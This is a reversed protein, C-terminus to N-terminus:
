NARDIVLRNAALSARAVLEAPDWPKIIWDDLPGIQELMTGFLDRRSTAFIVAPMRAHTKRLARHVDLGSGAGLEVDLLVIDPGHKAVADLADRVTGVSRCVFGASTLVRDVSRRLQEDDDVILIATM